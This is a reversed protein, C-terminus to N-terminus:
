RNKKVAVVRRVKVPSLKRLIKENKNKNECSKNAVVDNVRRYDYSWRFLV